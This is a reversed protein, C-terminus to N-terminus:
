ESVARMQRAGRRLRKLVRGVRAFLGYARPHDIRLIAVGLKSRIVPDRCDILKLYSELWALYDRRLRQREGSDRTTNSCSESHQRYRDFVARSVYAPGAFSMKALFVQDEFLGRFSDEFGGVALAVDRRIMMGSSSPTMGRGLPYLEKMLAGPPYLQDQELSVDDGGPTQGVLVTRDARASGEEWSHWYLTAGSVTVAESYRTFLAVQQQLKDPFWADDGDLFAVLSGLANKLGLNRSASMGRNARNEHTLYRVRNPHQAAYKAAIEASGDSSGDDVLLLEWNDYSQALVSQIAEGLYKEENLFIIICSVLPQASENRSQVETGLKLQL